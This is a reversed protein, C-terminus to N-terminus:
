QSDKKEEEQTSQNQGEEDKKFYQRNENRVDEKNKLLIQKEELLTKLIIDYQQGLITENAINMLAQGAICTAPLRVNEERAAKYYTQIRLMHRNYRANLHFRALDILRIKEDILALRSAKATIIISDIRKEVESMKNKYLTLIEEREGFEGLSSLKSQLAREEVKIVNEANAIENNANNILCDLEELAKIFTKRRKKKQKKGKPIKYLCRANKFYEDRGCIFESFEHNMFSSIAKYSASTSSITSKSNYNGFVSKRADSRGLHILSIEEFFGLTSKFMDTGEM